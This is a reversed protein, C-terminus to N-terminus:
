KTVTDLRMSDRDKSISACYDRITNLKAKGIGKIKLLVDDHTSALDNVTSIGLDTLEKITIKNLTPITEILKPFFYSVIKDIGGHAETFSAWKYNALTEKVKLVREDIPAELEAAKRTAILFPLYESAKVYGIDSSMTSEPEEDVDLGLERWTKTKPMWIGEWMEKAYVPPPRNPDSHIEGHKALVRLLTRLQLTASFVLGDVVDQHQQFTALPEGSRIEFTSTNRKEVEREKLELLPKLLPARNKGEKKCFIRM